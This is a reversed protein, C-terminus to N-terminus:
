LNFESILQDLEEYITDLTAEAEDPSEGKAWDILEKVGNVFRETPQVFERDLCDAADDGAYDRIITQLHNLTSVCEYGGNKLRLVSTCKM